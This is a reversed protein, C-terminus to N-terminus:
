QNEKTYIYIDDVGVEIKDIPCTKTIPIKNENVTLETKEAFLVPYNAYQPSLNELKSQLEALTM